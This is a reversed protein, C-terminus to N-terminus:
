DQLTPVGSALTGVADVLKVATSFMPKVIQSGHKNTLIRPLIFTFNGM